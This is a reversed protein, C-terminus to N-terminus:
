ELNGRAFDLEISLERHRGAARRRHQEIEVAVFRDALGSVAAEHHRGDDGDHAHLLWPTPERRRPPQIFDYRTAAAAARDSTAMIWRETPAAPPGGWNRVNGM